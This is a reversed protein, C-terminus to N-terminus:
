PTEVSLTNLPSFYKATFSMHVRGARLDGPERSYERIAPELSHVLGGLSADSMLATFVTDVLGVSSEFPADSMELVVVQFRFTWLVSDFGRIEPSDAIPEIVLAPLSGTSLPASLGRYVRDSSIGEADRLIDAVKRLLQEARTAM